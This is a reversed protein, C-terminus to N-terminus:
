EQAGAGVAVSENLMKRKKPLNTPIISSFDM